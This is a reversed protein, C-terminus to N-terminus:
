GEKKTYSIILPSDIMFSSLIPMTGELLGPNLVKRGTVDAKVVVGEVAVNSGLPRNEVSINPGMPDTSLTRLIDYTLRLVSIM